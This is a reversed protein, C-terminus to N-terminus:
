VEIEMVKDAEASPDDSFEAQKLEEDIIDTERKSSTKTKEEDDSLKELIQEESQKLKKTKQM